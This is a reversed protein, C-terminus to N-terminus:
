RGGVAEDGAYPMAYVGFAVWGISFYGFHKYPTTDEAIYKSEDILGIKEIILFIVPYLHGTM